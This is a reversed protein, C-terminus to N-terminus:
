IRGRWGCGSCWMPACCGLIKRGCRRAAATGPRSAWTAFYYPAAISGVVYSALGYFPFLSGILGMGLAVCLEGRNLAWQPNARELLLNVAVLVAFPFFLGMPFLAKNNKSASLIVTSWNIYYDSAVILLLGAMVARWSVAKPEAATHTARQSLSIALHFRWSGINRVHTARRFRKIGCGRSAEQSRNQRRM